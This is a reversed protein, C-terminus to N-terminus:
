VAVEREVRPEAPSRDVADLEGEDPLVQEVAPVEFERRFQDIGRRGLDRARDVAFDGHAESPADTSSKGLMKARKVTARDSRRRQTAAAAATAMSAAGEIAAGAWSALSCSTLTAKM